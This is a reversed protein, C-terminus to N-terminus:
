KIKESRGQRTIIRREYIGAYAFFNSGSLDFKLFYKKYTPVCDRCGDYFSNQAFSGVCSIPM